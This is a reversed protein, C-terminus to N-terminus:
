GRNRRRLLALGGLALMTLTVPEPVALSFVEGLGNAGGLSTMGYLTNGDSSLILSGCPLGGNPGNFSFLVKPTGGTLPISFVEGDNYQGGYETMGFLTSGDASLILSGKPTAGNPGNFSYLITPTGGTAPISFIEGFSHGGGQSTMGYLTSGVLILSGTPQAGHDVDFAFLVTPTGGTVPVSFITGDGYGANLAMNGGVQTMGYLTSGSLKLSGTPNMGHNGDFNFLITPTGGIAPLSLITGGNTTGGEWTM